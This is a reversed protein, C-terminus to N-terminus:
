AGAEAKRLWRRVPVSLALVALLCGGMMVFASVQFAVNPSALVAGSPHVDEGAPGLEIWALGVAM